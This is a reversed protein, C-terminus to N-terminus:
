MKMNASNQQDLSNQSQGRSGDNAMSAEDMQKLRLYLLGIESREEVSTEKRFDPLMEEEEEKIHHEVLEALVKVKAQWEDEDNTRSIQDVLLDALQHETVGELGEARLEQNKKMNVYLSEEEPKAHNLLTPVFQEFVPQKEEFEIESDKLIKIMQKLPKHDQLILEIIDNPNKSNSKSNAPKVSKKNRGTASKSVSKKAPKASIKSKSKSSKKM